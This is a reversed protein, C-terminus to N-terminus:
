HSSIFVHCRLSTGLLSIHIASLNSNDRLLNVSHSEITGIDVPASRVDFMLNKRDITLSELSSSNFIVPLLLGPKIVHLKRIASGPSIYKCLMTVDSESYTVKNLHLCHLQVHYLDLLSSVHELQISGDLKLTHLKGKIVDSGLGHVFFDVEVQSSVAIHWRGGIHRICHGILYFDFPMCLVNNITFTFANKDITIKQNKVFLNKLVPINQVIKDCEYVCQVAQIPNIESPVCLCHGVTQFLVNDGHICLGALFRSVMNMSSIFVSVELSNGLLSIHIASLYEQLTLHLFCFSYNPGVSIDNLSKTKKMLGLHDFDGDCNFVYTQKLLGDYAMKALKVFQDAVSTEPHVKLQGLKTIDEIRQLPRPMCYDNTIMRNHVLHRRILSRTLADFLQTMTKPYRCDTGYSTSDKFIVAVIVANLPLYMMGKIIPNGNIYQLFATCQTESESFVSKAYEVVQEEAFGLIELCKDISYQCLNRLDASVSPRSTIIVIAEPLERGKILQIYVSEKQQQEYPLEDFGDLVLLVGKGYGISDLIEEINTNRSQPFLDSLKQAEQASRERLQVLVVLDFAKVCELEEWKHCLEWALTSKGVGPAGEILVCRVPKSDQGPKLMDQLAIPTKKQLVEETLGHLTKRTFEDAEQRTVRENSIVALDIYYKSPTILLKEEDPLPQKYQYKLYEAYNTVPDGPQATTVSICTVIYTVVYTKYIECKRKKMPPSSLIDEVVVGSVELSM